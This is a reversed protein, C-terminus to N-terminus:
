NFQAAESVALQISENVLLMQLHFAKIVEAENNSCRAILPEIHDIMHLVGQRFPADIFGLWKRQDMVEDHHYQWTAWIEEVHSRNLEYDVSHARLIADIPDHFQMLDRFAVQFLMMANVM